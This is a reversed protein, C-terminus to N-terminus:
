RAAEAGEGTAEGIPQDTTQGTTQGTAEGIPEGTTEALREFLSRQGDTMPEPLVLRVRAHLDGYGGDRRPMGQGALRFTRGGQTGAPIRLELTRGKMSPVRADGGLAATAVPVDVDVHLDDGRREFTRHPRVVVRLFLDGSAGGHAGPGGKGAVRIRTGTDVGPPIKVEIRRLAAAAGTGRCGHCIAGALEGAGSCVRCRESDGYVELTRTTGGYAEELPIQVTHEVNQGRQRGAARRFLSEFMGGRGRRGEEQGGAGFADFIGGTDFGAGPAGAGARRRMEDIQDAHEWQDGYRDYKARSGADSLVEYARNIDKFRRVADEDGPNVDPHFKRALRRYTQRIEKESADHSVGLVDYFDDAM